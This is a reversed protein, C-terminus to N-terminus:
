NWCQITLIGKCALADSRLQHIVHRHQEAVDHTERWDTGCGRGHLDDIHEVGQVRGKVKVTTDQIDILYVVFSCSQQKKLSYTVEYVITPKNPQTTKNFAM